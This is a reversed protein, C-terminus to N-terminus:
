AFGLPHDVRLPWEAARLRHQGVQRAVRMTDGDAVAAEDREVIRPDSELPLVVAGTLLLSGFHHCEGDLSKM